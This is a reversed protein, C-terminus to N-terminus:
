ETKLSQIKAEIEANIEKAVEQHKQSLNTRLDHVEKAQEISLNHLVINQGIQSYKAMAGNKICQTCGPKSIEINWAERLIQFKEKHPSDILEEELTTFNKLINQQEENM